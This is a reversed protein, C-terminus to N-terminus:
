VNIIFEHIKTTKEQKGGNRHNKQFLHANQAAHTLLEANQILM